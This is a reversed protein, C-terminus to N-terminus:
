RVPAAGAPRPNATTALPARGPRVVAAAAAAYTGSSVFGTLQAFPLYYATPDTTESHVLVGLCYPKGGIPKFVLPTDYNDQVNSGVAGRDMSIASGIAGQACSDGKTMPTLQVLQYFFNTNSYGANAGTNEFALRSVALTATTPNTLVNVGTGVFYAINLPQPQVGTRVTPTGALTAGVLLHGTADVHAMRSSVSGDGIHVVQATVATATGTTAIVVALASLALAVANGRGRIKM